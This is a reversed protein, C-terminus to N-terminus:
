LTLRSRARNLYNLETKIIPELNLNLYSVSSNKRDRSQDILNMENIQKLLLEHNKQVENLSTKLFTKFDVNLFSIPFWNSTSYHIPILAPDKQIKFYFHGWIIACFLQISQFLIWILILFEVRNEKISNSFFHNIYLYNLIELTFFSAIVNALLIIFNFQMWIKRVDSVLNKLKTFRIVTSAYFVSLFSIIALNLHIESQSILLFILLLVLSEKNFVIQILFFLSGFLFMNSSQGDLFLFQVQYPVKFVFDNFYTLLNLISFTTMKSILLVVLMVILFPWNSFNSFCLQMLNNRFEQFKFDIKLLSLQANKNFSKSLLSNKIALFIMKIVEM